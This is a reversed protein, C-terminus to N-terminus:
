INKVRPAQTNKLKKIVDDGNLKKNFDLVVKFKQKKKQQSGSIFSLPKNSQFKFINYM